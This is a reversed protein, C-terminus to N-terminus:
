TDGSNVWLSKGFFTFRSGVVKEHLEEHFIDDELNM